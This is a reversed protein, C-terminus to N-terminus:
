MKDHIYPLSHNEKAITFNNSECFFRACLGAIRYTSKVIAVGMLTLTMYFCYM